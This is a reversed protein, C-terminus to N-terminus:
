FQIDADGEIQKNNTVRRHHGAQRRLTRKPRITSHRDQYSRVPLACCRLTSSRTSTKLQSGRKECGNLLPTNM